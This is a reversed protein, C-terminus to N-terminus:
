SVMALNQGTIFRALPSFVLMVVTDAVDEPTTLPRLLKAAAIVKFVEVLSTEEALQRTFHGAALPWSAAM